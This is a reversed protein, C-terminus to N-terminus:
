NSDENGNDNDYLSDEDTIYRGYDATSQILDYAEFEPIRLEKAAMQVAVECTLVYTVFSDVSWFRVTKNISVMENLQPEFHTKILHAMQSQRKIGYFGVSFTQAIPLKLFESRSLTSHNSRQCIESAKAYYKSNSLASSSSLIKEIHAFNSTVKITLEDKKLSGPYTTNKYKARTARQKRQFNHSENFSIAVGKDLGAEVNADLDIDDLKSSQMAIDKLLGPRLIKTMKLKSLFSDDEEKTDAKLLKSAKCAVTKGKQLANWEKTSYDKKSM